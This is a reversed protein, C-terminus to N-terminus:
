FCCLRVFKIIPNILCFKMFKRLSTPFDLNIDFNIKLTFYVNQSMLPFGM